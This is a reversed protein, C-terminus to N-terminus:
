VFYVLPRDRGVCWDSRSVSGEGSPEAQGGRLLSEIADVVTPLSLNHRMLGQVLESQEETLCSNMGNSTPGTSILTGSAIFTHADEAQPPHPSNYQFSLNM